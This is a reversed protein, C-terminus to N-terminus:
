SEDALNKLLLRDIKKIGTFRNNKICTGKGLCMPRGQKRGALYASDEDQGGDM